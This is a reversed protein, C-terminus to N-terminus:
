PMSVSSIQSVTLIRIFEATKESRKIKKDIRGEIMKILYGRNVISKNKTLKALVDKIQPWNSYFDVKNVNELENRVFPDKNNIKALAKANKEQNKKILKLGDLSEMIKNLYEEQYKELEGKLKDTPAYQLSKKIGFLRDPHAILYGGRQLTQLILFYENHLFKRILKSSISFFEHGDDLSINKNEQNFKLASIVWHLFAITQKVKNEPIGIEILKQAFLLRSKIHKRVKFKYNSKDNEM